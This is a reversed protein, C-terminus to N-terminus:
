DATVDAARVAAAWKPLEREMLATPEAPAGGLPTVGLADMRPKIGEPRMAQNMARNLREVLPAPLGAPGYLANWGVVEFDRVGAEQFTQLEPLLPSRQASTTALVRMMGAQANPMATTPQAFMCDVRGAVLDTNAFSEGRYPVHILKTGAAVNLIAAALHGSTGNGPSAATIEMRRALDLFEALNRAPLENRVVIVLPQLGYAGIPTFDRRVDYSLRRYLAPNIAHTSTTGIGLTYGDPAARALAEAGISGGAGGRNEAIVQQGLVQALGQALLRSQADTGGGAPFPIILRIPRDPYAQALAPAALMAGGLALIARRYLFLTM